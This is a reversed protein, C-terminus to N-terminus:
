EAFPGTKPKYPLGNDDFIRRGRTDGEKQFEQYIFACYAVDQVNLLKKNGRKGEISIIGDNTWRSITPQPVDYDRAAKSVWTTESDLHAFQKYEDLDEKRLPTEVINEQM